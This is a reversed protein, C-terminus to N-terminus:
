READAAKAEGTEEDGTAEPRTRRDGSVGEAMRADPADARIRDADGRWSPNWYGFRAISEAVREARRERRQAAHAAVEAARLCALEDAAQRAPM